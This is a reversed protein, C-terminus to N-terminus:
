RKSYEWGRETKRWRYGSAFGITDNVARVATNLLFGKGVNQVASNRPSSLMLAVGAVGAVYDYPLFRATIPMSSWYRIGLERAAWAGGVLAAFDKGSGIVM